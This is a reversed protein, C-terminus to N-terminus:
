LEIVGQGPLHDMSIRGTIELKHPSSHYCGTSWIM